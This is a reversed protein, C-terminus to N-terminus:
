SICTASLSVAVELVQTKRKKGSRPEVPADPGHRGDGAHRRSSQNRRLDVCWKGHHVALDGGATALEIEHTMRIPVSRAKGQLESVRVRQLLVMPMDGSRQPPPGDLPYAFQEIEYRVGEKEIRTTIVPLGDTLKQGKWSGALKSSLEGFDFWFHFHDPNGLDSHVGAGRDIGFKRMASDWTVCVIHGPPREAPNRYSPSGMDEWCRTFQEYSAEPEREVQDLIRRGSWDLSSRKIRRFRFRRNARRSFSM